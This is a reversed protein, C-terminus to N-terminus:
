NVLFKSTQTKCPKWQRLLDKFFLTRMRDNYRKNKLQDVNKLVAAKIARYDVAKPDVHDIDKIVDEHMMKTVEQNAVDLIEKEMFAFFDIVSHQIAEILQQQVAADLQSFQGDVGKIVSANILKSLADEEYKLLWYLVQLLEYSITFQNGQEESKKKM